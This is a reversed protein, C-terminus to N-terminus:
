IYTLNKLSRTAMVYNVNNEAEQQWRKDCRQAIRECAGRDVIFIDEAELGKSGHGTALQPGKGNNSRFSIARCFAGIEPFTTGQNMIEIAALYKQKVIEQNWGLSKYEEQRKGMDDKLHSIAMQVSKENKIAHQVFKITDALVAPKVKFSINSKIFHSAMKILAAKTRSIVLSHDPYIVKDFDEHKVLGGPKSGVINNHFQKALEIVLKPCRFTENVRFHEASPFSSNIVKAQFPDAGAFFNVAQQDDGVMILRERPISNVLNFQSKSLDQREDILVIDYPEITLNFMSPFTIMDQFSVVSVEDFSRQTIHLAELIFNYEINFRDCTKQMSSETQKGDIAMHKTALDRAMYTGYPYLKSPNIEVTMNEKIVKLGFSHLTAVECNTPLKNQVSQVIAKNYALYLIKSKPNDFIIQTLLTSKGSGPCANVIVENATSSRVANQEDSFEISLQPESIRTMLDMM